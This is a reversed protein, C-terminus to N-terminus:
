VEVFGAYTISRAIVSGGKENVFELQVILKRLSDMGWDLTRFHLMKADAEKRVSEVV